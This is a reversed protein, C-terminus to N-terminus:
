RWKISCGIANAENVKPERGETLAQVADRLNHEHVKTADKWPNSSSVVPNDDVRGKYSLKGDKGFVFCHPTCLAGFSKAVEQSADQCYPFPYNMEQARKKMNEFNDEPYGEADNSCILILQVNKGLFQDAIQILRPEVANAYPCHNCTFVVVAITGKLDAANVTSGDTAGLRFPPMPDGIALVASNDNILVM